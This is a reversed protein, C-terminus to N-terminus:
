IPHFDLLERLTGGDFLRGRPKREGGWWHFYNCLTCSTLSPKALSWNNLIWVLESKPFSFYSCIRYFLWLGMHTAFLGLVQKKTFIVIKVTHGKCGYQGFCIFCFLMVYCLIPLNWFYQEEQLLKMKRCMCYWFVLFMVFPSIWGGVLFTLKNISM